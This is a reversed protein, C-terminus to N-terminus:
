IKYKPFILYNYALYIDRPKGLYRARNKGLPKNFKGKKSFEILGNCRSAPDLYPVYTATVGSTSLWNRCSLSIFSETEKGRSRSFSLSLYLSDRLTVASGRARRLRSIATCRTGRVRTGHTREREGSYIKNRTKIEDNRKEMVGRAAGTGYSPFTEDRRM